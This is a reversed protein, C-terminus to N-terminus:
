VWTLFCTMQSDQCWVIVIAWPYDVVAPLLRMEAPYFRLTRNRHIIFVSKNNWDTKNRQIM